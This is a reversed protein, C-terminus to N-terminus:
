VFNDNAQLSAWFHHPGDTDVEELGPGLRKLAILLFPPTAVPPSLFEVRIGHVNPSHLRASPGKRGSLEPAISTLDPM